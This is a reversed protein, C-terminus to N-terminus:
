QVAVIGATIDDPEGTSARKHKAFQALAAAREKPPLHANTELIEKIEGDSVAKTVGDSVVLYVDGPQVAHTKIETRPTNQPFGGLFNLLIDRYNGIPIVEDSRHKFVLAGLQQRILLPIKMNMSASYVETLPVPPPNDLRDSPILGAEVCRAMLDDVQTLGELHHQRLRYVRGDSASGITLQRSGSVDTWFKLVIQTTIHKKELMKTFTRADDENQPDFPHGYLEEFKKPAFASIRSDQKAAELLANHIRLFLQEMALTVKDQQQPVNIPSALVFSFPGESEPGADITAQVLEEAKRSALHPAPGSGAGDGHLVLGEAEHASFADECMGTLHGPSTILEFGTEINFRREQEPKWPAPPFTDLRQKM